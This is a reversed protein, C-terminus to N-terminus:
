RGAERDIKEIMKFVVAAVQVLEVRMKQPDSEALAEYVEELLMGAFDTATDGNISKYFDARTQYEWRDAERAVLPIEWQPRFKEDQRDRESFVEDAIREQRLMKYLYSM